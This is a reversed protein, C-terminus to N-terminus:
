VVMTNMQVKGRTAAGWFPLNAGNIAVWEQDYVKLSFKTERGEIIQFNSKPTAM